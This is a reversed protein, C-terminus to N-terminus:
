TRSKKLAVIAEIVREAPIEDLCRSHSQRHKNCGEQHCPVCDAIGQILVINKNRQFPAVRQFPPANEAYDKPFPSWKIPNTPGFLAVTPAGTAAALHTVATDVGIYVESKEILQAIEAFSLKGALNLTNQPFNKIVDSIYHQEEKNTSGTLVVQWNQEAIWQAVKEWGEKTWRKYKWMPTLHLVAYSNLPLQESKKSSQPLIVQYSRSINLVDALQLNQLITPTDWDDLLVFRQYCWKKWLNKLKLDALVGVRYNAALFAYIAPRDGAQTSVALDYKKFITQFLKFHDKFHPREPIEILNRIDPNGELVAGKGQFVLVDINAQTAQKLSHILPTTLLVDGIQRTSIVLIRKIQM